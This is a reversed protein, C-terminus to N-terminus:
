MKHDNYLMLITKIKQVKYKGNTLVPSVIWIDTVDTSIFRGCVCACAWIDAMLICKM